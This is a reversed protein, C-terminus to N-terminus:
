SNKPVDPVLNSSSRPNSASCRHSDFKSMITPALGHDNERRELEVRGVVDVVEKQVQGDHESPRRATQKVYVSEVVDQARRERAYM